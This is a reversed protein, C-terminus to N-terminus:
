WARNGRLADHVLVVYRYNGSVTARGALAGTLSNFTVGPPLWQVSDVSLGRADFVATLSETRTGGVAWDTLTTPITLGEGSCDVSFAGVSTNLTIQDGYHVAAVPRFVVVLLFSNGPTITIDAILPETTFGPPCDVSNLVLDTQGANTIEFTRREISGVAVLGFGLTRGIMLPGSNIPTTSANGGM